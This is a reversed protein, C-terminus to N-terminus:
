TSKLATKSVSIINFLGYFTSFVQRVRWLSPTLKMPEGGHLTGEGGRESSQRIRGPLKRKSHLNLLRPDDANSHRATGRSPGPRPRDARDLDRRSAPLDGWM